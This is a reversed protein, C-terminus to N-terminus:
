PFCLADGRYSMYYRLPSDSFELIQRVHLQYPVNHLKSIRTVERMFCTLCLMQALAMCYHTSCYCKFLLVKMGGNYTAADDWFLSNLCDSM